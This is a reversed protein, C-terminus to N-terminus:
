GNKNCILANQRNEFNSGGQAARLIAGIDKSQDRTKEGKLFFHILLLIGYSIDMCERRQQFLPMLDVVWGYLCKLSGM